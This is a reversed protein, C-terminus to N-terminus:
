SYAKQELSTPVLSQIQSLEEILISPPTSKTGNQTMAADFDCPPNRHATEQEGSAHAGYCDENRAGSMGVILQDSHRLVWFIPHHRCSIIGVLAVRLELLDGGIIDPFQLHCPRKRSANQTAVFTPREHYAVDHVDMPRERVWDVCEIEVIVRLDEPLVLGLLIGVDNGDHTTVGDIAAKCISVTLDEQMLGVGRQDREIGLVPLDDPLRLIAIRRFALGARRGRHHDLILHQDADRAAFEADVAVHGGIVQLAAPLYPPGMRLPRVVM